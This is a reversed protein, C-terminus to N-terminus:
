QVYDSNTESVLIYRIKKDKLKYFSTDLDIAMEVFPNLNWKVFTGYYLDVETM